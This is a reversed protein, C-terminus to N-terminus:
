EFMAKVTPAEAVLQHLIWARVLADDPIVEDTFESGALVVYADGIREEKEDQRMQAM